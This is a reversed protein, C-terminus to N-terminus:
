LWALLSPVRELYWRRAAAGLMRGHERIISEVEGVSEEFAGVRLGISDLEWGARLMGDSVGLETYFVHDASAGNELLQRSVEIGAAMGLKREKPVDDDLCQGYLLHSTFPAEDRLLCDLMAARAYWTNRERILARASHEMSGERLAIMRWHHGQLARLGQELQNLLFTAVPPAGVQRNLLKEVSAAQPAYPSELVVLKV